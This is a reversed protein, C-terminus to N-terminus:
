APMVAAFAKAKMDAVEASMLTRHARKIAAEEAEIKSGGAVPAVHDFYETVANYAGFATGFFPKVTASTNYVDMVANVREIRSAKQRETTAGEVGFLGTFIDMVEVAEVSRAIRAECEEVYTDRLKFTLGLLNRVEAMRSRPDGTHRLAVRSVALSEAMRQTNACVVRVPSIQAVLSGGGDHWNFVSLYLDTRDTSGDLGKMEMWDPMLMTVFTRRGGDLAGLTEIHGGSAETIDGLLATTAENQFPSWHNGVVGLAEVKGNVPNTRLTAFKGPVAVEVEGGDPTPVKAVLPEKRVDWGRMHAADLAEDVTMAHGVPTGLRHWADVVTEGNALQRTRSDAFAAVGETVDIEHAM